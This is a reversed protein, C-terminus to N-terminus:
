LTATSHGSLGANCDAGRGCVIGEDQVVSCSRFPFRIQVTSIPLSLEALFLNYRYSPNTHEVIWM